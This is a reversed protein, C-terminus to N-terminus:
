GSLIPDPPAGKFTLVLSDFLDRSQKRLTALYSRITCFTAAGEPTRSVEHGPQGGPKRGSPRRLSRPKKSFGDSTPPKSSNHSDKALRAELAVVRQYLALILEDQQEHTLSPLDHIEYM